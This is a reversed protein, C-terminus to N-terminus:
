LSRLFTIMDRCSWVCVLWFKDKLARLFCMVSMSVTVMMGESVVSWLVVTHFVMAEGARELLCLSMTLIAAM